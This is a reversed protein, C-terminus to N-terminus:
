TVSFGRARVRKQRSARGDLIVDGGITVIPDLQATTRSPPPAAFDQRDHQEGFGPRPDSRRWGM